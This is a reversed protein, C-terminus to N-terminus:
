AFQKKTCGIGLAGAGVHCAISLPLRDVFVAAGFHKSVEDAFVQAESDRNTHAVYLQVQSVAGFLTEIDHALAKIMIRKAAKLSKAVSYADLKDSKIQLVPKIKLVSGVAAAAPTIRGSKRLHEMTDVMIYVSADAKTQELLTCIEQVTRGEQAWRVADLISSRQTVSIRQNDVVHVRGGFHADQALAQATACSGSLSSSMPIYVLEDHTELLETWLKGLDVISPQSTAIDAGAQQRAYFEEASLDVGEFCEAGDVVFPMPVVHVGLRQAEDAMIGSNTDTVMAIKQTVRRVKGMHFRRSYGAAVCALVILARM